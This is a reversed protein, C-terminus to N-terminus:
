ATTRTDRPAFFALLKAFRADYSDCLPSEGGPEIWEPHQRRLAERVREQLERFNHIEDSM